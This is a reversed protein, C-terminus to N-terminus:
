IDTLLLLPQLVLMFDIGSQAVLNTYIDARKLKKKTAKGHEQRADAQLVLAVRNYRELTEQLVKYQRRLFTNFLEQQDHVMKAQKRFGFKILASYYTWKPIMKEFLNVARPHQKSNLLVESTKIESSQIMNYATSYDGTEEMELLIFMDLDEAIDSYAYWKTNKPDIHTSSPAPIGPRNGTGDSILPSDQFRRLRSHITFNDRLIDRWIRYPIHQRPAIMNYVNTNKYANSLIIAVLLLLGVMPRWTGLNAVRELFPNGQELVVKLFSIYHAGFNLGVYQYSTVLVTVM